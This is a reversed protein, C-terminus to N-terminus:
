FREPTRRMGLPHTTAHRAALGGADNASKPREIEVINKERSAPWAAISSLDAEYAPGQRIERERM